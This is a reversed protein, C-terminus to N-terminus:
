SATANGQLQRARLKMYEVKRLKEDGKANLLAQAWLGRDIQGRDVEDEAQALYESVSMTVSSQVRNRIDQVQTITGSITQTVAEVATRGKLFAYALYAVAAAAGFMVAVEDAMAENGGISLFAVTAVIAVGIGLLAAL